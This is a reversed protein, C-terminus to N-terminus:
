RARYTFEREVDEAGMDFEAFVHDGEADFALRYRGPALGALDFANKAAVRQARLPAWRKDVLRFPHVEFGSFISGDKQSRATVLSGRLNMGKGFDFAVVRRSREAGAKISVVESPQAGPKVARLAHVGPALFISPKPSEQRGVSKVREDWALVPTWAGDAGREEVFWYRSEVDPQVYAGPLPTMEVDVRTPGAVDFTREVTSFGAAEVRIKHTGRPMDELPLDSGIRQFICDDIGSCVWRFASSRGEGADIVRIQERRPAVPSPDLYSLWGDIAGGSASAHLALRVDEDADLRLDMRNEGGRLECPVRRRYSVSREGFRLRHGGQEYSITAWGAGACLGSLAFSGDSKADASAGSDGVAVSITCDRASGDFGLVIKGAVTAAPPTVVRKPRIAVDAVDTYVDLDRTEREVGEGEVVLEYPCPPLGAFRFTAGPHVTLVRHFDALNWGGAPQAIQRTLTLRVDGPADDAVRGTVVPLDPDEDAASATSAAVVLLAVARKMRRM